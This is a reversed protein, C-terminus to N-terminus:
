FRFFLVMLFTLVTAIFGVMFVNYSITLFRYKKDLVKGLYYLDRTLNGYLLESDSFLDDMAKEYAELDLRVFNGFFVINKRTETPPLPKNNLSTIKPRASLVAFILSALGTVLFMVVPLLIMPTTETINRYSLVTILVSILITNVSIMINAKGDAIASLNIHNRYNARFFTQIGREPVKKEIDGFRRKAMEGPYTEQSQNLNFKDIQAKQEQILQSLNDEFNVRAHHTYFQANLLRQLKWMKSEKTSMKRDLLFDWELQLLASNESYNRCLAVITYADSLTKSVINEPKAKRKLTDIEHLVKKQRSALYEHTKLFKECVLQSYRIYDQYDFLYGTNAFWAAILAIELQQASLQEEEALSQVEAVFAATLHYNHYVFRADQKQNHLELVHTQALEVWSIQDTESFPKNM